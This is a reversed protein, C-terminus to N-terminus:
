AMFYLGAFRERNPNADAFQREGFGRAHDCTSFADEAGVAFVEHLQRRLQFREIYLVRIDRLQIRLHICARSGPIASRVTAESLRIV